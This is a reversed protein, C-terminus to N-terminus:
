KLGNASCLFTSGMNHSIVSVSSGLGLFLM